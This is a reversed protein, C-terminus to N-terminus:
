AHKSNISFYSFVGLKIQFVSCVLEDCPFLSVFIQQAPIFVSISISFLCIQSFSSFQFIEISACRHLLSYFTLLTVGKRHTWENSTSFIFSFIAFSFRRFSFYIFLVFYIFKPHLQQSSLNWQNKKNIGFSFEALQIAQFFKTIFSLFKTIFNRNYKSACEVCTHAKEKFNRILLQQKNAYAFVNSLGGRKKRKSMSCDVPLAWKKHHTDQPFLFCPFPAISQALTYSSQINPQELQLFHM